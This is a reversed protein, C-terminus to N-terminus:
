THQKLIKRRENDEHGHVGRALVGGGLSRGTAAVIIQLTRRRSESLHVTLSIGRDERIFPSVHKMKKKEETNLHKRFFHQIKLASSEM